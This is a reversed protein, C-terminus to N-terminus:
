IFVYIFYLISVEVKSITMQSRQARCTSWETVKASPSFFLIFKIIIEKMDEKNNKGRIAHTYVHGYRFGIDHHGAYKM